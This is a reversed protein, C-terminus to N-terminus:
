PLTHSLHPCPHVYRSPSTIRTSNLLFSTSPNVTHSHSIGNAKPCHSLLLIVQYLSTPLWGWMVPYLWPSPFFSSGALPLSPLISDPSYFGAHSSAQLRRLGLTSASSFCTLGLHLHHCHSDARDQLDGGFHGHGPIVWFVVNGRVPASM